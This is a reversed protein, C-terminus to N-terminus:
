VPEKITIKLTTCKYEQRKRWSGQTIKDTSIDSTALEPNEKMHRVFADVLNIDLRESPKFAFPIKVATEM